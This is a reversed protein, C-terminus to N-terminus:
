TAPSEIGGSGGGGGRAEVRIRVRVPHLGFRLNQSVRFKVMFGAWM